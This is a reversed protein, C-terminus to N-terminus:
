LSQQRYDNLQNRFKLCILLLLTQRYFYGQLPRILAPIVFVLRSLYPCIVWAIFLVGGLCTFQFYVMTSSGNGHLVPTDWREGNLYYVYTVSTAYELFFLSLKNTSGLTLEIPVGVVGYTVLNPLCHWWFGGGNFWSAM